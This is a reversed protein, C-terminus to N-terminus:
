VEQNDPQPSIPFHGRLVRKKAMLDAWEIYIDQLHRAGSAPNYKARGHLVRHNHVIFMDGSRAKRHYQNAPDAIMRGLLQYARYFADMETEPLMFPLATQNSFRFTRISGDPYCDIIPEYSRTDREASFIQYSIRTTRLIEFATPDHQRLQEAIQWGDVLLTEGGEAKNVLYHLIQGSPPYPYSALDTHPPLANATHAVNYGDPNNLVDHIRGFAVERVIAMEEAFQTASGPQTPANSLIAAGYSELEDLFQAMLKEDARVTAFDYEPLTADARWYHRKEPQPLKTPNSYDHATLWQWSFVSCHGDAWHISLSDKDTNVTEVQSPTAIDASYLLRESSLAVRCQTCGCNDRLWILHFRSQTHEDWQVIVKNHEVHANM